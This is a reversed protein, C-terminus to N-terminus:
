VELSMSSSMSCSRCILFCKRLKTASEIKLRGNITLTNELVKITSRTKKEWVTISYWKQSASCISFPIEIRRSIEWNFKEKLEM